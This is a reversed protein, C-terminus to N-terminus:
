LDAMIKEWKLAMFRRMEKETVPHEGEAYFIVSEAPTDALEIMLAIERVDDLNSSVKNNVYKKVMECKRITGLDIVKINKKKPMPVILLKRSDMDLGLALDPLFDTQTLNINQEGAIKHLTKERKKESLSQDILLYGIPALFVLLLSIGMFTTATDM